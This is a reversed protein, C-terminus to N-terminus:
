ALAAIGAEDLAGPVVTIPVPFTGSSRYALASVLPGPGDKGTGAALVLVAIDGDTEVVSTIEAVADGERIVQEPEVSSWKRVMDAFRGLLAEAQEMAEARMINEVGKWQQFTAPPIVHLLVLGGGTHGARRSAFQVARSCEPTDDIVVLFKRKHGEALAQRAAM